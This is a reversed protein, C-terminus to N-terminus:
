FRARVTAGLLTNGNGLTAEVSKPKSTFYLVAGVGVGVVGAALTTDAVITYLNGKNKLSDASGDRPCGNACKTDLDSKVGQQLIFFVGSTVLLAVGTGGVIYAAVPAKTVTRGPGPTTETRAVQTMPTAEVRTIKALTVEITKTEKEQINFSTMFMNFGPARADISHPGPDVPMARGVSVSGLAVGDLSITAYEAGAGRKVLVKPIRANLADIKGPVQAAVTTAKTEDAEALALRYDGLALALRGLHEECLAINFRVQATMKVAAVEQFLGLAGAWDGATELALGQQFQARAKTLEATSPQALAPMAVVLMSVVLMSLLFLLKRAAPLSRVM